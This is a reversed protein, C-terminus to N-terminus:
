TLGPWKARRLAEEGGRKYVEKAWRARERKWAREQEQKEKYEDCGMERQMIFYTDHRCEAMRRAYFEDEMLNLEVM